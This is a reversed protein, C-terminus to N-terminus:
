KVSGGVGKKQKGPDTNIYSLIERFEDSGKFSDVDMVVLESKMYSGLLKRKTKRCGFRKNLTGATSGYTDFPHWGNTYTKSGSQLELYELGKDTQRVIAAHQGVALYYEKNPKLIKPLLKATDGAEKEVQYVEAVVGDLKAIQMINGNMSFFNQSKGGRFDIVDLGNKNGIYAFGLSSCSGKTLDGGGLREIIKEDSLTEPLAKVLNSDINGGRLNKMLAIYGDSKGPYKMRESIEKDLQTLRHKLGDIKTTIRSSEQSIKKSIEDLEDRYSNIKHWMGYYETEAKDLDHTIRTQANLLEEFKKDYEEDSIIENSHDKRLARRDKKNAEREATLTDVEAQKEPLKAELEAKKIQISTIEPQYKESVTKLEENKIDIEAQIIKRENELEIVKASKPPTPPAPPKPPNTQFDKMEYSLDIQEKELAKMKLTIDKDIQAVSALDKYGKEEPTYRGNLVETTALKENQLAKIEKDMESIRNQYEDVSNYRFVRDDKLGDPKYILKGGNKWDRVWGDKLTGDPNLKDKNAEMWKEYNEAGRVSNTLENLEGPKYTDPVHPVYWCRCNPHRPLSPEEGLIFVKGHDDWCVACINSETGNGATMYKVEQINQTKWADAQSTYSVRKTETRAIREANYRSTNIGNKIRKTIQPIGEGLIMSQTLGWRLNKTLREKDLWLRDSFMAGSWPYNLTAQVLRPNLMAFAGEGKLSMTQGLTFLARTFQETYEHTLFQNFLANEKGGLKAIETNIQDFLGRSRTLASQNAYSWVGGVEQVKAFTETVDAIISKQAEEYAKQLVKEFQAEDKFAKLNDRRVAKEREEILKARRKGDERLIRRQKPTLQSLPIGYMAQVAKNVYMGGAM